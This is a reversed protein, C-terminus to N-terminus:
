ARRWYYGRNADIASIYNVGGVTTTQGNYQPRGVKRLVDMDDIFGSSPQQTSTAYNNPIGFEDALSGAVNYANGEDIPRGGSLTRLYDVQTARRQADASIEATRQKTFSDLGAEYARLDADLKAIQAQTLAGQEAQAIRSAIDDLSASLQGAQIDFASQLEQARQRDQAEAQLVDRDIQSSAAILPEGIVKQLQTLAVGSDLRGAASEAARAQGYLGTDSGGGGFFERRLAEKLTDRQSAYFDPGLPKFTAKPIPSLRSRFSDYLQAGPTVSIDSVPPRDPVQINNSSPPPNTALFREKALARKAPDMAQYKEYGGVTALFAERQSGLYTAM